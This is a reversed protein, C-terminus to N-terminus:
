TNISTRGPLHSEYQKSFILEAEHLDSLNDIEYWRGTDFFVPKLSLIGDAIMESFVTEYYDHVAGSAIRQKLREKVIDWTLLSLSYINVTKYDFSSRLSKGKVNIALIQGSNNLTATTGSMWPMMHSVAISDPCLMGELLSMDFVIDSEILLFAEQIMERALWLSYINNTIKYHHNYIYDITIGNISNGLFSRICSDMHGTVVILRKFGHNQLCLTLRELISIGNVDTLCKPTANTLPQLRSGTGAALLVATTIENKNYQIM